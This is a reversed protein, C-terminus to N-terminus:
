NGVSVVRKSYNISKGRNNTISFSIKYISKGEDIKAFKLDTVHNILPMYHSYDVVDKGYDAIKLGLILNQGAKYLGYKLWKMEKNQYYCRFEIEKGEPSVNIDKAQRLHDIITQLAVEGNQRNALYNEERLWIKYSSVMVNLFIICLLSLISLALLVELLTFGKIKQSM